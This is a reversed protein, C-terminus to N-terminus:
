ALSLAVLQEHVPIGGRGGIGAVDANVLQELRLHLLTGLGDGEDELVGQVIERMLKEEGLYPALVVAREVHQAHHVLYSLAGFGGMSIGVLWLERYGRQRAPLVIDHALRDIVSRRAYYGYHADVCLADAPLGSDTVAKVFGHVEFEEAVDGLGPLFIILIDKAQANGYTVSSMPSTCPLFAVGRPWSLALRSFAARRFRKFRHSLM